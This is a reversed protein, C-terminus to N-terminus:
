QAFFSFGLGIAAGFISHMMLALACVLPPNPTLRGMIGKGLCPLFFLWPVVVSVVGFLLGDAFEAALINARMLLMFIAAYAIAIGYHVFWGVGLENRRNPRLELDRVMLQGGTVLGITWRGVIAWNSPPISTFWQFIRQWVDFVVCAGVGVIVIQLGFVDDM